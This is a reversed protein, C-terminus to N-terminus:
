KVPAERQKSRPHHDVHKGHQCFRHPISIRSTHGLLQCFMPDRWVLVLIKLVVGDQRIQWHYTHPCQASHTSGPHSAMPVRTQSAMIKTQHLARIRESDQGYMTVAHVYHAATILVVQSDVQSDLHNTHLVTRTRNQTLKLRRGVAGCLGARM